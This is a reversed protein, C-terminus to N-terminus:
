FGSPRITFKEEWMGGPPIYQLDKYVGRQALNMSNTIGAM